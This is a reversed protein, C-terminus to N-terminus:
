RFFAIGFGGFAAFTLHVLVCIQYIVCSGSGLLESTPTESSFLRMQVLGIVIGTFGVLQDVYILWNISRNKGTNRLHCVIVFKFWTGFFLALANFAVLLYRLVWHSNLLFVGLVRPESSGVGQPDSFDALAQQESVLVDM